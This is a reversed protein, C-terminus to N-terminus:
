RPLGIARAVLNKQIDIAGLPRAVRGLRACAVLVADLASSHQLETWGLEAATKSLDRMADGEDGATRADAWWRKLPGDVTEDFSALVEASLSTM